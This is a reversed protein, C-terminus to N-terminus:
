KKEIVELGIFFPSLPNITFYIEDTIFHFHDGEGSPTYRLKAIIHSSNQFSFIDDRSMHIIVDQYMRLNNVM